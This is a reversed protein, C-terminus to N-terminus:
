RGAKHDTTLGILLEYCALGILVADPEAGRALPDWFALAMLLAASFAWPALVLRTTAYPALLGGLSFFEGRRRGGRAASDSPRAPAAGAIVSSSDPM